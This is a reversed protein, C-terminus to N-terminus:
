LYNFITKIIKYPPSSKNLVINMGSNFCKQIDNVGTFATYGLIATKSGLKRLESIAEWGNKLPMNSDMIIIKFERCCM